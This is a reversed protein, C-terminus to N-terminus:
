QAAEGMLKSNVSDLATMNVIAANILDHQQQLAMLYTAEVSKIATAAQRKGFPYTM